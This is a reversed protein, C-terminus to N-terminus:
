SYTLSARNDWINDYLVNGDAWLMSTVNDNADYTYKRIQWISKDTNSNNGPKAKGLYVLNDDSDYEYLITNNTDSTIPHGWEDHRISM